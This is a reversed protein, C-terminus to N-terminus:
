EVEKRATEPRNVAFLVTEIVRDWGWTAVAAARANAGLFARRRPDDRLERLRGRLADLDGVPVFVAQEGDRLRSSLEDVRPAIVPLGAALYEGLKLPSYHFVGSPSGLILAVDMAALYGPLEAHGVTGTFVARVGRDLALREIRPREPGDGVFLLTADDIGVVAEVAQEVAHFGRFSGVWGVVFRSSLGLEDRRNATAGPAFRELDVGSATVVVRDPTVGIRRVEHAVLESGCAVVDARVLAPREALRELASGWLRRRVGWQRAQWVLTAPVFLVSPVGLARALEMGATVFLDHRQWVFAVDSGSWPGTPDVSFSRARQWQRVDKVATKLEVPAWRRLARPSAPTLTPASGRSRLDQPDTIGSPTVVFSEGLVREAAAAWGATSVLAAVPGQQGAATAALM